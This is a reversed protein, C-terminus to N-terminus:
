EVWSYFLTELDTVRQISSACWADIQPLPSAACIGCHVSGVYWLAGSQLSIHVPACMEMVFHQMAPCGGLAGHSGCSPDMRWHPSVWEVYIICQLSIWVNLRVLDTIGRLWITGNAGPSAKHRKSSQWCQNPRRIWALHCWNVIGVM